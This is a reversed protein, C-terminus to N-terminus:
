PAPNEMPVPRDDRESGAPPAADRITAGLTESLVLVGFRQVAVPEPTSVSAYDFRGRIDTYGDKHFKVRGNALKSYVKVYVKALPKGAADKVAVQGYNELVLVKMSGAYYPLARSKGGASIEVLVNKGKLADPLPILQKGQKAALNINATANPQILAFQGGFDQLFPNRSFLLEVDMVYYQIRIKDLNQWTLEVAAGDLRVDFSPEAAALKGQEQDRNGAEAVKAVKGQAEDLQDVIVQFALRWRDVPHALHRTALERARQLDEQCMALYAGCYDFQLHTSIKDARVKAYSDLAEEVRDQLLLYYTVALWDSDNLQGARALVNLLAHYQGHLIPNVIQRAKGLAHARANVLPKYELHQYAHREVADFSLLPHKLVNHLQSALGDHQRLFEGQTRVDDHMMAYSWVTAHYIHRARLLDTVRVFFGRDRLRFAMKDLELGQANERELYAIVEDSSGNQSIHDWSATDVRTPKAVVQFTAQPGAALLSENKAVHVPFQAFKGPLPFYFYTDITQTRYPELDVQFSRTPKGGSLAIAGGPIQVLVSLKQRSPSTNTVVVQSGYVTHVVFEGTVFKDMREGNDDRYRDNAKFVNQSVLIPAQAKPAAAPHVEEHVVIVPTPSILTMRAGEFKVTAKGPTFPLELVSIALMAEAFSGSASAFDKSLFPSKGDHRALDLWFRGPPILSAVQQSIPLHHYNNEAWERTVAVARYLPRNARGLATLGETQFYLNLNDKEDNPAADSMSRTAQQKMKDLDMVGKAAAKEGLEKRREESKKADSERNAGDRGAFRDTPMGGPAAATAPASSAPVGFAAASGGVGGGMGMGGGGSVGGLGSMPKDALKPENLVRAGRRLSDVAKGLHEKEALDGRALSTDFLAQLQVAAPPQLRLREDLWRGTRAPEGALRTALLVKEAANLRAHRWPELYGALDEELLWRDVFTKDKKSALFPAVTAKFFEPDKHYVFVNLEHCAHKSYLAKKEEAKLGPWTTVFRFTAFRGDTRLTALLGYVKDLSDYVEFRSAGVDAIIMPTNSPVVTVQKRQTFHGAPDLAEILRLDLAKLPAGPAAVTRTIVSHPDTAVVRIIGRGALVASPIRVIGDKDPILNAALASGDALFDIEAGDVTGAADRLRKSQPDAALRSEGATGKGDFVGGELANQEGTATERVAWPNLLLAPRDVMATPYKKHARRDLVYRYEDGIDRGTVYSSKQRSPYIGSLESNQVKALQAFIDFAPQYRTALVHVRTMRTSGELKVTLGTENRSIGAVQLPAVPALAMDRLSGLVMSELVPGAVVRIRITENHAKLVLDYDGPALKAAVLLGNSATLQGFRDAVIVNDRVEFFAVDRRQPANADTMLPVSVDQGAVVHLIKRQTARDALLPWARSGGGSLTVDIRDIGPLPGLNIIGRADSKLSARVPERFEHHKLVIEAARDARTEGTRGTVELWYGSSDRGLHIDDVKDTKQSANIQFTDGSGIEEETGNIAVRVKGTLTANVTAMRRPVRIVYYSERDDFVKFDKAEQRTSIGDLDTAQIVLRPELLKSVSILEGNLSLGPRVVITAERGAILSERDIHIGATLQYHESKQDLYDLCTFTGQSLLIPRRGTTQAFPVLARGNKDAPYEQAGLYVMAGPVPRNQDDVVTVLHGSPVQKALPRLAGKRILARSSKGNGILDVVYVGPKTLGPLPLSRAERRLPSQNSVLTQESNAVLGDLNVDTDIERKFERYYNGTNIEFVKVIMSPVNKIMLELRVPEDVRFFTKSTASFDIDVRERLQRFQEPPMKSAWNEPDGLGSTAKAEVFLHNLYVDNIFPQFDRTSDETRLLELLLDRVLPEDDRIPPLLSSGSYSANLDVPFRRSEDSELLAKSQYHRQRPLALYELVLAKNVRGQSRELALKQNLVHAKLSNHVPGLRRVFALMRDIYAGALAKDGRWDDDAGPRLRALIALVFNQQNLLGPQAKELEELQSLTLRNHIPMSGFPGAGNTSLDDLILKVLGSLDPRSLRRLLSRRQDPTLTNAALRELAKDEFLDLHNNARALVSETLLAQDIAKPDLATPLNPVSGPIVRQHEHRVGLHRSLYDITKRPDKDHGGFAHRLQIETLLATQGHRAHWAKTLELCQDPKETQLLHLCNYFYYPETGPILTKLFESRDKALAFAEVQDIEGASLTWTFALVMFFSSFARM